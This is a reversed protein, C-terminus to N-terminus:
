ICFNTKIVFNNNANMEGTLLGIYNFCYHFMNVFSISKIEIEVKTLLCEKDGHHSKHAEHKDFDRLKTLVTDREFALGIIKLVMVMIIM